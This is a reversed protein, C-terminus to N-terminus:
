AIESPAADCLHVGSTRTIEPLVGGCGGIRGDLTGEINPEVPGRSACSVQRANYPTDAFPEVNGAIDDFFHVNEDKIPIGMDNRWWWLMSGVANQKHGDLASVVLSSKVAADKNYAVDQWWDSKTQNTGGLLALMKAREESDPGSAIGATVAATYCSRCFTTGVGGGLESVLLTGQAYATDWVGSVEVDRPCETTWGQKGTLTRDIDFVCLCPEIASDIAFVKNEMHGVSRTNAPSANSNKMSLALLSVGLAGLTITGLAAVLRPGVRCALGSPHAHESETSADEDGSSLMRVMEVDAAM